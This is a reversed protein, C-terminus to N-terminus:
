CPMRGNVVPICLCNTERDLCPSLLRDLRWGLNAAVRKNLFRGLGGRTAGSPMGRYSQQVVQTGITPITNEVALKVETDTVTCWFSFDPNIRNAHKVANITLEILILDLAAVKGMEAAEFSSLDLFHAPATIYFAPTDKSVLRDALQHLAADIARKDCKDTLDLGQRKLITRITNVDRVRNTRMFFVSLLAKEVHSLITDRTITPWTAATGAQAVLQLRDHRNTLHVLRVLHHLDSCQALLRGGLRSMEDKHTDLQYISQAISEANTLPTVLAHTINSLVRLDEMEREMRSRETSDHIAPQSGEFYVALCSGTPGKGEDVRVQYALAIEVHTMKVTEHRLSEPMPARLKLGGQPAIRIGVRLFNEGDVRDYVYPVVGPVGQVSRLDVLLESLAVPEPHERYRTFIDKHQAMVRTAHEIVQQQPKELDFLYAWLSVCRRDPPDIEGISVTGSILNPVISPCRGEILQKALPNWNWVLWNEDTVLWAPLMAFPEFSYKRRVTRRDTHSPM